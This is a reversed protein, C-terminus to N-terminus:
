PEDDESRIVSDLVETAVFIPLRRKAALVIADSPRSDVWVERGDPGVLVVKGFFTDDRLADVLVRDFRYGLEDVINCILDHTMPRPTQKNRVALDMALAEFSGIYIPFARDGNKEGLLIIQHHGLESIQIERLEMEVFDSM